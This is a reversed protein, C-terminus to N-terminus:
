LSKMYEILAILEEEKLQGQFTPMIGYTYGKVIQQNSNLTADRLYNEDAIRPRGKIFKRRSGYIGKLSPGIGPNGNTSHCGICNRSKYIQQGKEIWGVSVKADKRGKLLWAEYEKLPVVKLKALMSSHATGCYETCFVHFTGQKEAKFWLYTYRGPLVDQKIRFSPVFFSHIVDKSNMILKIPKGLPVVLENISKKGSKYAFEWLWQKGFVHVELSDKPVTRMGHFLYWGWAFVFLFIGLPILSWMLELTLNHTIRPTKRSTGERHRYKYVFYIMGGILLFFAIFSVWLIFAYLDDVQAALKTAPAPMFIRAAKNQASDQIAQLSFNNLDFFSLFLALM